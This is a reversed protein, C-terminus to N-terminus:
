GSSKEVSIVEISEFERNTTLCRQVGEATHPAPFNSLAEEVKSIADDVDDAEVVVWITDLVQRRVEVDLEIKM